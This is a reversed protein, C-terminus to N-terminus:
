ICVSMPIIRIAPGRLSLQCVQELVMKAGSVGALYQEKSEGLGATKEIIEMISSLVTRQVLSISEDSGFTRSVKGIIKFRGGTLKSKISAASLDSVDIDAVGFQRGTNPDILIMEILGSSFYDEELKSLAITLLKEYKELDKQMNKNFFESNIKSGFNYLFQAILPTSIKLAELISFLDVPKLIADIEVFKGSGNGLDDSTLVQIEKEQNLADLLTMHLGGLTYRRAAKTSTETSRSADGSASIPSLFDQLFKFGLTLNGSAKTTKGESIETEMAVGKFM